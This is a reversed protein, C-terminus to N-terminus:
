PPKTLFKNSRKPHLRLEPWTLPCENVCLYSKTGTETSNKKKKQGNTLDVAHALCPLALSTNRQKNKASSSNCSTIVNQKHKERPQLKSLNTTFEPTTITSNKETKGEELTSYKKQKQQECELLWCLSEEM